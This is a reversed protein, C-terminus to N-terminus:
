PCSRDNGSTHLWHDFEVCDGDPYAETDEMPNGNTYYGFLLIEEGEYGCNITNDRFENEWCRCEDSNLDRYSSFYAYKGSRRIDNNRIINHNSYDRVRIPDGSIWSFNNVSATNHDSNHALYIGHMHSADSGHDENHVFHNLKITNYDSNVLDLGAYGFDEDPYLENGIEFFYCGYVTNYGNWGSFYDANGRFRIGGPIYHQIKLYYFRLNTPEGDAVRLDFFWDTMGGGDFVPRALIDDIGEGYQYDTPMFSITHEPSTHTWNISQGMYPATGCQIRVEIDQDIVPKYELLRAHVGAITRLPANATLGSQEDWGGPAMYLTFVNSPEVQDSDATPEPPTVKEDKSCSSVLCLIVFLLLPNKRTIM